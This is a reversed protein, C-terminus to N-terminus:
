SIRELKQVHKVNKITLKKFKNLLLMVVYKSPYLEKQCDITPNKNNELMCLTVDIYDNNHLWKLVKKDISTDHHINAQKQIAEHSRTTSLKMYLDDDIITFHSLLPKHGNVVKHLVYGTGVLPQKKFKFPCEIKNTYQKKNQFPSRNRLVGELKKKM